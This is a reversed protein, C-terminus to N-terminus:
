ASQIPLEVLVCNGVNWRDLLITDPIPIRSTLYPNDSFQGGDCWTGGVGNIIVSAQMVRQFRLPLDLRATVFRV